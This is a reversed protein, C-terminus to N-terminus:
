SHLGAKRRFLPTTRVTVNNRTQIVKDRLLFRPPAADDVPPVEVGYLKWQILQQLDINLSRTGIPGKHKPSLV